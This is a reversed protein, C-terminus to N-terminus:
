RESGTNEDAEVIAPLETKLENDSDRRDHRVAPLTLLDAALSFPMDLAFLLNFPFIASKLWDCDRKIGGFPTPESDSITGMFPTDQGDFNAITACGCAALSV